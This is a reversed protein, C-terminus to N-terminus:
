FLRAVDASELDLLFRKRDVGGAFGTLSGSMGIVRHCPVLISLPNRANAAAVARVSSPKGISQALQSYTWTEGFPITRLANWVQRQFDTGIPALDLEFARRRGAFYEDLQETVADFGDGAPAGLAGAPPAPRHNEFYVGVVASGDRVLTISGIPTEVTRHHRTTM